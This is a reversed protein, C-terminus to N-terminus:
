EVFAVVGEPVIVSAGLMCELTCITNHTSIDGALSVRLSVGEETRVSSDFGPLPQLPAFVVALCEPAGSLINWNKAALTVADDTALAALLGKNLTVTAAGSTVAADAMVVYKATGITVGMGASVVDGTIGKLSISTAAAAADAAAKITGTVAVPSLIRNTRQWAVGAVTGAVGALSSDASGRYAANAFPELAMLVTETEPSIYANRVGSIKAKNLVKIKDLASAYTSIATFDKTGAGLAMVGLLYAEIDGVLTTVAPQIVTASLDGISMALEQPTIAFRQYFTRNVTIDASTQELNQAVYTGSGTFSKTSTTIPKRIKVLGGSTSSADASANRYSSRLLTPTDVLAVSAVAAIDASTVFTNSM